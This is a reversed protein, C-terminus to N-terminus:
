AGRKRSEVDPFPEWPYGGTEALAPSDAPVVRFNTVSRVRYRVHGPHDKAHAQGWAHPDVDPTLDVDEVCNACEVTRGTPISDLESRTRIVPFPHTM